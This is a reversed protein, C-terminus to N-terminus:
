LIFPSAYIATQSKVNRTNYHASKLYVFVSPIITEDSLFLNKTQKMKRGKQINIQKKIKVKVNQSPSLLKNEEIQNLFINLQMIIIKEQSYIFRLYTEYISTIKAYKEVNQAFMLMCKFLYPLLCFVQSSRQQTHMTGTKIFM